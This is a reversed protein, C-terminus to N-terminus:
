NWPCYINDFTAKCSALPREWTGLCSPGNGIYGIKCTFNHSGVTNTCNANVDCVHSGDKCEDLDTFIFLKYICLFLIFNRFNALYYKLSIDSLKKALHSIIYNALNETGLKDKRVLATIFVMPTPVTRM